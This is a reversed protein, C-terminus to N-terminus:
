LGRPKIIKFPNKGPHKALFDAKVKDMFSGEVISESAGHHIVTREAWQGDAVVNEIITTSM